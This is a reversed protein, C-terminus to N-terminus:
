QLVFVIAKVRGMKCVIMSDHTVVWLSFANAFQFFENLFILIKVIVFLRDYAVFFEVGQPIFKCPKVRGVGQKHPHTLISRFTPGLYLM